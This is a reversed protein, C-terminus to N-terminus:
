IDAKGMLSRTGYKLLKRGEASMTGLHALQQAELQAQQALRLDGTEMYRTTLRRMRAVATDLKGSQAEEWAKEQMRYLNLRRVAEILPVPPPREGSSPNKAILEAAQEVSERAGNPAIYSIEIPFRYRAAMTQPAVLFELLITMPSRGEMDGLPVSDADASLPQPLPTLKFGGRLTFQGPWARKM